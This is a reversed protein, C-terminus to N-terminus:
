VFNRPPEKPHFDKMSPVNLIYPFYFQLFFISNIYLALSKKLYRNETTVTNKKCETMCLNHWRLM